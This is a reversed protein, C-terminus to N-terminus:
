GQWPDLWAGALEISSVVFCRRCWIIHDHADFKYILAHCSYLAVHVDLFCCALGKWEGCDTSNITRTFVHVFLSSCDYEMTTLQDDTGLLLSQTWAQVRVGPSTRVARRAKVEPFCKMGCPIKTILGSCSHSACWKNKKKKRCYRGQGL